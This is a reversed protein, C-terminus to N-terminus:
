AAEWEVTTAGWTFGAGFAALLVRDGAALRGEATARRLALPISAASTNAFGEICDIVREGPLDLRETVARMIRGNAQHYVFLDVDALELGAALTAALTVEALRAVAAIFTEHGQMQVLGTHRRVHILDAASGDAGLVAPGIRGSGGTPSVVVAGAGDGFLAATRRDDPDVFRSMLDAGIVLVHRARGAELQAAALALGSLFGTCAAGVDFAGAAHAGIARAVLPAANPLLDDQSMTAVVVLDLESPDLEARRLADRGAAAALDTFREGPQAVRRERIGTRSFIWDETVGLREAIPGNGVVTEPLSTGVSAIGAATVPRRAGNTSRAPVATLGDLATTTDNPVRHLDGLVAGRVM